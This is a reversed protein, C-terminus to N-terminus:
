GRRLNVMRVSMTPRAPGIVKPFFPDVLNAAAAKEWNEEGPGDVSKLLILQSAQVQIALRAALTDSTVDWSHPVSENRLDDAEAWALMDMIPLFGAAVISQRHDLRSLVRGEPLLSALLWANLMLARLALWHSKEEGLHFRQDWSRVLDAAPGGGPVLLLDLTGLNMLFSRLRAALDPLDLLSGGIKVVVPHSSHTM